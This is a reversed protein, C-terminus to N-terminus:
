EAINSKSAAENEIGSPLAQRAPSKADSSITAPGPRGAGNAAPPHAPTPGPPASKAPSPAFAAKPESPFPAAPVNTQARPPRSPPSLSAGAGPAPVKAAAMPPAQSASPRLPNRASSSASKAGRAPSLSEDAPRATKPNRMHSELPEVGVPSAYPRAPPPGSSELGDGDLYDRYRGTRGPRPASYELGSEIPWTDLVRGDYADIIFKVREGSPDVGSVEIEGGVDRLPGVLRYGRRALTAAIYGRRDRFQADPGWEDAPRPPYYYGYPSPYGQATAIGPTVSTAAALAPAFAACLLLARPRRLFGKMTSWSMQETQEDAQDLKSSSHPAAPAFFMALRKRRAEGNM